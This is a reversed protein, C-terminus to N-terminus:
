EADANEVDETTGRAPLISAVKVFEEELMGYLQTETTVSTVHVPRVSINDIIKEVAKLIKKEDTFTRPIIFDRTEPTSTELNLCLVTATTTTITRTVMPVRAM